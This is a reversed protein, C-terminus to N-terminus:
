KEDDLLQIKVIAELPAPSITNIIQDTFTISINNGVKLDSVKIDEGRWTMNINDNIKFTFNGRYNIDNVELGKVNIHIESNNYQKIEKITAYFTQGYVRAVALDEKPANKQGILLGCTFSAGISVIFICLIIITITKIFKSLEPKNILDSIYSKM